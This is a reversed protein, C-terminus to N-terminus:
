LVHADVNGKENSKWEDSATTTLNMIQMHLHKQM